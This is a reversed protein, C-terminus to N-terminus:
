KNANNISEKLEYSLREFDTRLERLERLIAELGGGIKSEAMERMLASEREAYKLFIDAMNKQLELNNTLINELKTLHSDNKERMEELEEKISKQNNKLEELTRMVFVYLVYGLAGSILFLFGVIGIKDVQEAWGIAESPNM